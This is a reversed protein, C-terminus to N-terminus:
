SRVYTLLYTINKVTLLLIIDSIKNTNEEWNRKRETVFETLRPMHNERMIKQTGKVIQFYGV